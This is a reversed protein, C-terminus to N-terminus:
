EDAVVKLPFEARYADAGALKTEVVIRWAYRPLGPQREPTTALQDSPITFKAKAQLPREPTAAESAKVDEWAEFQPAKFSAAKEGKVRREVKDCVLGVRVTEITTPQRLAQEVRVNFTKGVRVQDTNIWVQADRLRRALRLEHLYALVPILGLAFYLLSM